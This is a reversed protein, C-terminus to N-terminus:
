GPRLITECQYHASTSATVTVANMDRFPLRQLGRMEGLDHGVLGARLVGIKKLRSKLFWV